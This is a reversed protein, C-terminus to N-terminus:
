SLISATLLFSFMSGKSVIQGEVISISFLFIMIFYCLSLSMLSSFDYTCFSKRLLEELFLHLVIYYYKSLCKKWCVNVSYWYIGTVLSSVHYLFNSSYHTKGKFLHLDLLLIQCFQGYSLLLISCTCMHVCVCVCLITIFYLFRSLSYHPLIYNPLIKYFLLKLLQFPSWISFM